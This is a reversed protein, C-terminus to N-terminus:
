ESAGRWAEFLGALEAAFLTPSFNGFPTMCGGDHIEIRRLAYPDHGIGNLGPVTTCATDFGVRHVLRALAPTWDSHKGNPYAFHRVPEGIETEIRRKSESIEWEAEVEELNSLIAHSVTHAGIAINDKPLARIMDWTMMLSENEHSSACANQRWSLKKLIISALRRREQEPIRKLRDGLLKFCKLRDVETELSWDGWGLESLDLSGQNSAKFSEWLERTWIPMVGDVAGTTVFITAPIHYQALVPRALTYNDRYGDDFTVAIARPVLPKRGCIMECVADLSVAHYQRALFAMQESFAKRSVTMGDTASKEGVKHYYLIRIQNACCRERWSLVGCGRSLLAILWKVLQRTTRNM